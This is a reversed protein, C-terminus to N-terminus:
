CMFSHIQPMEHPTLLKMLSFAIGGRLGSIAIIIQDNITIPKDRIKNLIFTLGFM